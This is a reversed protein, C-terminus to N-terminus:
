LEASRYRDRGISSVVDSFEAELARVSNQSFFQANIASINEM